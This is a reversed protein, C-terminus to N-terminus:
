PEVCHSRLKCGSKQVPYIRCLHMYVTDDEKKGRAYRPDVAKKKLIM